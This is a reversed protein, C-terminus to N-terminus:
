INLRHFSSISLGWLSYTTPRVSRCIFVYGIICRALFGKGKVLVYTFGWWSLPDLECLPDENQREGLEAVTLGAVFLEPFGKFHQCETHFQVPLSVHICIHM